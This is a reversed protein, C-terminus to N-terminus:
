NKRSECSGNKLHMGSGLVEKPHRTAYLTGRIHFVGGEPAGSYMGFPAGELLHPKKHFIDIASAIHVVDDVVM